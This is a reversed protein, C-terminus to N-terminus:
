RLLLQPCQVLKKHVHAPRLKKPRTLQYDDFRAVIRATRSLCASGACMSACSHSCVGDPAIPLGSCAALVREGVTCRSNVVLNHREAVLLGQACIAGLGVWGAGFVAAQGGM